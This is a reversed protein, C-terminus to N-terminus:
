SCLSHILVPASPFVRLSSRLKLGPSLSFWFETPSFLRFLSHFDSCSPSSISSCKVHTLRLIKGLRLVSTVYWKKPHTMPKYKRYDKKWEMLKTCKECLGLNTLLFTFPWTGVKWQCNLLRRPRRARLTTSGNSAIRISRCVVQRCKEQALIEGGDLESM